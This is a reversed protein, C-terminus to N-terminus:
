LQVGKYMNEIDRKTAEYLFNQRHKIFEMDHSHESNHKFFYFSAVCLYALLTLEVFRLCNNIGM